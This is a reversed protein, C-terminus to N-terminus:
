SQSFVDFVSEFFPDRRKHFNECIETLCVSCIRCLRAFVALYAISGINMGSMAAPHPELIIAAVLGLIGGTGIQLM